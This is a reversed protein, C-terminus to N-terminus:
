LMGTCELIHYMMKKKRSSWGHFNESEFCVMFIGMWVTGETSAETFKGRPELEGVHHGRIIRWGQVPHVLFRQLWNARLSPDVLWGTLEQLYIKYISYIYICM